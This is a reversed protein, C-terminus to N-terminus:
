SYQFTKLKACSSKVWKWVSIGLRGAQEAQKKQETKNQKLTTNYHTISPTKRSLNIEPMQHYNSNICTVTEFDYDYPFPEIEYM